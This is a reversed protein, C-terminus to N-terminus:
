GPGHRPPPRSAAARRQRVAMFVLFLGVAGAVAGLVCLAIGIPEPAYGNGTQMRLLGAYVLVADLVLLAIGLAWRNM